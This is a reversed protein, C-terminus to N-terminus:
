ELRRAMEIFRADTAEWSSLWLMPIKGEPEATITMRYVRGGRPRLIERPMHLRRNARGGNRSTASGFKRRTRIVVLRCRAGGFRAGRWGIRFLSFQPAGRSQIARSMGGM